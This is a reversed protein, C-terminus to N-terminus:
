RFPQNKRCAQQGVVALVDGDDVVHDDGDLVEPRDLEGEDQDLAARRRAGTGGGHTLGRRGRAAWISSHPKGKLLPSTGERLIWIMMYKTVCLASLPKLLTTAGSMMRAVAALTRPRGRDARPVYSM